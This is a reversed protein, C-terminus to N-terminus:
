RGVGPLTILTLRHRSIPGMKPLGLDRLSDGGDWIPDAREDSARGIKQPICRNGPLELQAALVACREGADNLAGRGATCCLRPVKLPQAADLVRQFKVADSRWYSRGVYDDDGLVDGAVSRALCEDIPRKVGM